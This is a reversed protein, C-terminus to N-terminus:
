LVKVKLTLNDKGIIEVVVGAEIEEDAAAQWNTGHLEVKGPLNPLVKEKVVVRQGVFEELNERSAQKSTIHGMFIGKVWRRLLVLSVVSSAIFILLQANLSVDAFFCVAATIMAGVAFFFVILGPLAFELLLLVIGVLVWIVEPELYGRIAEM